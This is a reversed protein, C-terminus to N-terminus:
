FRRKKGKASRAASQTISVPTSPGASKSGDEARFKAAYESKARHKLVFERAKASAKPKGNMRYAQVLMYHAEGTGDLFHQGSQDFSTLVTEADAWQKREIFSRAYSLMLDNIKAIGRWFIAMIIGASILDLAISGPSTFLATEDNKSGSPYAGMPTTTAHKGVTSYGFAHPFKHAMLPQAIILAMPIIVLALALFFGNIIFLKRMRKDVENTDIPPESLNQPM